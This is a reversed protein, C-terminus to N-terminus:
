LLDGFFFPRENIFTNQDPVQSGVLPNALYANSSTVNAQPQPPMQSKQQEKTPSETFTTKRRTTSPVRPEKQGDPKAVSPRGHENM